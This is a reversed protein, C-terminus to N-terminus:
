RCDPSGNTLQLLVLFTSRIIPKKTDTKIRFDFIEVGNDLM